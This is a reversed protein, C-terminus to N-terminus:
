QKYVQINQKLSSSFQKLWEEGHRADSVVDPYMFLVLRAMLDADDHDYITILSSRETLTLVEVEFLPRGRNKPLAITSQQQQQPLSPRTSAPKVPPTKGWSYEESRAAPAQHMPMAPPLAMDFEKPAGNSQSLSSSSSPAFSVTKAAPKSPGLSPIHARNDELLAPHVNRTLDLPDEDSAPPGWGPAYNFSSLDKNWTNSPRPNYSSGGYGSSRERYDGWPARRM